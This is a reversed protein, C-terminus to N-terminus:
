EKGLNFEKIEFYCNECVLRIDASKMAEDNWEGHKLRETECISCWAMFDDEEDLEMGPETDFAEEFGTKETKNLHQCIFAARAKDHKECFIYKNKIEWAKENETYETLIMFILLHEDVPRYSGIAGLMRAAVATFQWAEIETAEFQGSIFHEIDHKAGFEKVKLVEYKAKEISDDNNWSWKWTNTKKSFTGVPKYRFNLEKEGTSFTLLETHQDYFWNEYFDIDYTKKFDEQLEQLEELCQDMFSNYEAKTMNEIM